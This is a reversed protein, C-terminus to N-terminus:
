NIWNDAELFGRIGGANRTDRSQTQSYTNRMILVRQTYKTSWCYLIVSRIGIERRFLEFRFVVLFTKSSLCCKRTQCVKSDKNRFNKRSISFIRKKRLKTKRIIESCFSKKSLFLQWLHLFQQVLLQLLNNRSSEERMDGALPKSFYNLFNPLVRRMKM